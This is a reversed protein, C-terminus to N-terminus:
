GDHLTKTASMPTGFMIAAKIMHYRSVSVGFNKNTCPFSSSASSTRRRIYLSFVPFGFSSYGTLIEFCFQGWIVNSIAFQFNLTDLNTLVNLAASSM